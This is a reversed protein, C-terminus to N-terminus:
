RSIGDRVTRKSSLLKMCVCEKAREGLELKAGAEAAAIIALNLDKKM